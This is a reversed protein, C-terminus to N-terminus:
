PIAGPAAVARPAAEAQLTRRRALGFGFLGLGVLGPVAACILGYVLVIGAEKAGADLIVQRYEPNVQAVAEWCTKMDSAYGWAAVGLCCVALGVLFTSTSLAVLVRRKAAAVAVLVAVTGSLGLMLLLTLPYMPWGGMEFYKAM